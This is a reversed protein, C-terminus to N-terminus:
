RAAGCRASLARLQSRCPRRLRCPARRRHVEHRARQPPRHPAALARRRLRRGQRPAARPLPLVDRVRQARPAEQRRLEGRYQQAHLRQALSSRRRAVRPLHHPAGRERNPGDWLLRVWVAPGLVWVVDVVHVQPVCRRRLFLDSPRGGRHASRLALRDPAHLLLLRHDDAVPRQLACVVAWVHRGWGGHAGRARGAAVLVTCRRPEPRPRPRVSYECYRPVDNEWRNNSWYYATDWNCVQGQAAVQWAPAVPAARALEFLYMRFGDHKAPVVNADQSAPVRPQFATDPGSYSLSVFSAPTTGTRLSVTLIDAPGAPM